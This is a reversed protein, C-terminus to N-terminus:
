AVCNSRPQPAKAEFPVLRGEAPVLNVFRDQRVQRRLVELIQADTDNPVAALEEVGNSCLKSICRFRLLKFVTMCDLKAGGAGLTFDSHEM